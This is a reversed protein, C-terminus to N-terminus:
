RWYWTYQSIFDGHIFTPKYYSTNTNQQWLFQTKSYDYLVFDYDTDMSHENLFLFNMVNMTKNM